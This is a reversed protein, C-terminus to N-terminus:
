KDRWRDIYQQTNKDSIKEEFFGKIFTAYRVHRTNDYFERFITILYTSQAHPMVRGFQIRLLSRDKKRTFIIEM